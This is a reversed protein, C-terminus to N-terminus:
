SIGDPLIPVEPIVALDYFREWTRERGGKEVCVLKVTVLRPDHLVDLGITVQRADNIQVNEWPLVPAAPMIVSNPAAVGTTNGISSIEVRALAPGRVMRVEVEVRDGGDWGQPERLCAFEPGESEDQARQRAAEAAEAATASRDAARASTETIKLSREATNASRRSQWWSLGAFVAAITAVLGAGLAIWDGADM